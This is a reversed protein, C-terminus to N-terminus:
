FKEEFGAKGPSAMKVDKVEGVGEFEFRIGIVAGISGPQAVDMVMKTNLYVKLRNAQVSFALHQFNKVDCGFASLDHEKGFIWEYGTLLNIDAICGKDCLPIIIASKTGLVTIKIKRCLCEEVTSTNRVTSEFIFNAADISDFERVTTFDLWNDNFVALGTKNRLVAASMGMAAKAKIEAATLYIPVPKQEIIGKWGQTKIFVPSEKKIEGDVILKSNFYGPYYYISTFQKGDPSVKQRRTTDWNQQIYVDNSHFGSADYDFVVSNPLNDSTKRSAFTVEVVKRLPLIKKSNLISILGLSVIALGCLIM